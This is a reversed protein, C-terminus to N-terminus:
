EGALWRQCSEVWAKDKANELYWQLSKESLESIRKGANKGFTVMPEGSDSAPPETPEPLAAPKAAQELKAQYSAKVQPATRPPGMQVSAANGDDDEEAVIGLMAALGYRRGYTIASGMGQATQAAVPIELRDRVWEGSAHILQTTVIVGKATSSVRQVVALGNDALPKRCAERISALDAYKSRFHPNVSDKPAAEMVGQAKALAKALEGLTPSEDAVVGNGDSM